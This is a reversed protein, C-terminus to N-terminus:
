TVTFGSPESFASAAGTADIARARWEYRGRPIPNSLKASAEVASPVLASEVTAVVQGTDLDRVVVAAKYLHGQPDRARVTFTDPQGYVHTSGASPSVLTPTSPAGPDGEDPVTTTTTSTSTSTTSSTTTTTTTTSAPPPPEGCGTDCWLFREFQGVEGPVWRRYLIRPRDDDVALSPYGGHEGDPGLDNVSWNARQDCGGECAVYFVHAEEDDAGCHVCSWYAVRPAGDVLALSPNSAWHPKWYQNALDVARYGDRVDDFIVPESWGSGDTCGGACEVYGLFRPKPDRRSRATYAIAMQEGDIALAGVSMRYDSNGPVVVTTEWSSAKLCASECSKLRLPTDGPELRRFAIRPRDDQFRLTPGGPVHSGDATTELVAREWSRRHDCRADCALYALETVSDGPYDLHAVRPRGASDLALSTPVGKQVSIGGGSWGELSTDIQALTLVSWSSGQHCATDCSAFQLQDLASDFWAVRPRGLDDLVLQLKGPRDVKTIQTAHWGAATECGADCWGYSVGDDFDRFVFRARGDHLQLAHPSWTSVAAYSGGLGVDTDDWGGAADAAAPSLLAGAVTVAGLLAVVSRGPRRRRRAALKWRGGAGSPPPQGGLPRSPTAHESM